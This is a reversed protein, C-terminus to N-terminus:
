VRGELIKRRALPPFHGLTSPFSLVMWPELYFWFGPEWRPETEKISATLILFWKTWRGPDNGNDFISDSFSGSFCLFEWETTSWKNDARSLFGPTAPPGSPQRLRGKAACSLTSSVRPEASGALCPLLGTLLIVCGTHNSSFRNWPLSFCCSLDSPIWPTSPM